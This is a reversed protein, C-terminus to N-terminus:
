VEIVAHSFARIPLSEEERAIDGVVESVSRGYVELGLARSAELRIANEREVYLVFLPKIVAWEGVSVETDESLYGLNKIPLSEVVDPLPDPGAPISTAGPVPAGPLNDSLSISKINGYAAYMRAASVVCEVVQPDDVVMGGTARVALYEIALDGLKV